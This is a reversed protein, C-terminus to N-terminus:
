LPVPLRRIGVRVLRGARYDEWVELMERMQAQIVPNEEMMFGAMPVLFTRADGVGPPRPALNGPTGPKKEARDLAHRLTRVCWDSPPMEKEAAVVALREAEPVSLRWRCVAPKPSPSLIHSASGATKTDKNNM